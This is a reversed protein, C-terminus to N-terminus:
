SLKGMMKYLAIHKLEENCSKVFRVIEVFAENISMFDSLATARGPHRFHRDTKTGDRSGFASEKLHKELSTM